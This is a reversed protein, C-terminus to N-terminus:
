WCFLNREGGDMGMATARHQRLPTGRTLQAQVGVGRRERLAHFAIGLVAAATGVEGQEAGPLESTESSSLCFPVPDTRM